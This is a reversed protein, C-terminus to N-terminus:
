SVGKYAYKTKFRQQRILRYWCLIACVINFILHQKWSMASIIGGCSCPLKSALSLMGPVYASFVSMLCASFWWGLKEAARCVLMLATVLEATPLLYALMKAAQGPISLALLQELFVYHAVLKSVGTYVFLLVLFLRFGYFFVVVIKM